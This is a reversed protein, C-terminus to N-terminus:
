CSVAGFVSIKILFYMAAGGFILEGPDNAYPRSEQCLSFSLSANTRQGEPCRTLAKKNAWCPRKRVPSLGSHVYAVVFRM